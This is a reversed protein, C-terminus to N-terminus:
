ERDPSTSTKTTPRNKRPNRNSIGLSRQIRLLDKQIAADEDAEMEEIQEDLKQLRAAQRERDLKLIALRTELRERLLDELQSELEADDASMTIRAVLLRLRSDLRWEKLSLEYRAPLREKLRALRESDHYLQRVAKHYEARRAKKLNNVLDYLEPHHLEAFKLAAAQREPTIIVKNAPATRKAHKSSSGKKVPQTQGFVWTASVVLLGGLIWCRSAPSRVM